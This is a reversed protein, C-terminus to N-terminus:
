DLMSKLTLSNIVPITINGMIGVWSAWLVRDFKIVIKEVMLDPSRM